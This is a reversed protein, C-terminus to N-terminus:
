IQPDRAAKRFLAASGLFILAFISTAIFEISHHVFPEDTPGSSAVVFAVALCIATAVAALAMGTARFRAICGGIIGVLLAVFFWHNAPNHESGVIGVALNSWIVLLTGLLALGAGGRYAANPSLRVALEFSGGIIAFLAGAFFFDGPSWNVGEAHMQMAVFPAALLLVAGGWGVLRWPIGRRGGGRVFEAM